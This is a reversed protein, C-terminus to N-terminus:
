IEFPTIQREDTKEVTRNESGNSEDQFGTMTDRTDTYSIM